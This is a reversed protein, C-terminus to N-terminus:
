VVFYSLQRLQRTCSMFSQKATTHVSHTVNRQHCSSLRSYVSSHTTTLQLRQKVNPDNFQSRAHKVAFSAGYFLARLIAVVIHCSRLCSVTTRGVTVAGWCQVCRPCATTPHLGPLSNPEPTLPARQRSFQRLVRRRNRWSTVCIQYSFCLQRQARFWRLGPWLTSWTVAVCGYTM